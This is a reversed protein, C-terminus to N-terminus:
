LTKDIMIWSKHNESVVRTSPKYKEFLKVVEGPTLFHSRMLALKEFLAILKVPFTRIDPEEIVIRGGRGLVRWMEDATKKQNAVHHLADVMIIRDFAADEFPLNETITRAVVLGSSKAQLLMGASSDVVVVRASGNEILKSVRGTGGAADLLRSNRQLDVLSQLTEFSDYSLLRDYHPALLDFHDFFPM